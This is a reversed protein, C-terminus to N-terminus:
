RGRDAIRQVTELVRLAREVIPYDVFHGDVQISALRGEGRGRLGRWGRAMGGGRREALLDHQRGAGSGSLHVAQGPLRAGRRARVSTFARGGAARGVGYRDTSGPRRRPALVCESRSPLLETETRGLDHRSRAHFRRRRLLHAAGPQRRRLHRARRRAAEGDRHDAHRRLRPRAPVACPARPASIMGTSPSSSPQPNSSPCSSATSARASTVANVDGFCFETDFANVRIFARSTRPRELMARVHDRAAVKASIAVADELDLIAADAGLTLAKEARRAHDGPAFLFSRYVSM